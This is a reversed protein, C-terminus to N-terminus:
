LKEWGIKYIKQIKKNETLGRMNLCSSFSSTSFPVEYSNWQLAQPSGAKCYEQFIFPFCITGFAIRIFPFLVNCMLGTVISFSPVYVHTTVLTSPFAKVVAFM